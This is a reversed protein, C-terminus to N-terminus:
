RVLKGILDIAVYVDTALNLVDRAAAFRPHRVIVSDGSTRFDFGDRVGYDLSRLDGLSTPGNLRLGDKAFPNWWPAPSHTGSRVLLIPAPVEVTDTLTLVTPRCFDAVDPAGGGPATAIQRAEVNVFRFREIITPPRQPPELAEIQETRVIVERFTVPDPASPSLLYMVLLGMLFPGVRGLAEMM